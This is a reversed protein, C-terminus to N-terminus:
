GNPFDINFQTLSFIRSAYASWNTAVKYASVSADPVYINYNNGIAGSEISPPTVAM